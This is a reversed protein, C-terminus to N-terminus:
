GHRLSKHLAGNGQLTFHKDLILYMSRKGSVYFQPNRMRRSHRRFGGGGGGGGGLIVKIQCCYVCTIVISVGSSIFVTSSSDPM